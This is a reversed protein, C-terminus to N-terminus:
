LEDDNRGPKIRLPQGCVSLWVQDAVDAVAQNMAGHADRFARVGADAPVIGGGIENTVLVVPTVMAVLRACLAELPPASDCNALWLTLCDVLVAGFGGSDARALAGDLDRPEEVTHWRDGRRAQHAAIRASMEGDGAWATAIYLLPGSHRLTLREALASKGSRAGGTVLIIRASDRM